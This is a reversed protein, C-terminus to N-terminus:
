AAAAIALAPLVLTKAHFPSVKSSYQSHVNFAKVHGSPLPGLVMTSSPPSAV